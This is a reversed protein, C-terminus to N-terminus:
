SKVKNKRREMEERLKRDRAKMDLEIKKRTIEESKELEAEQNLNNVESQAKAFAKKQKNKEREM